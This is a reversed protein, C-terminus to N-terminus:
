VDIIRLEERIRKGLGKMQEGLERGMKGLREGLEKMQRNFVGSDWDQRWHPFRHMRRHSAEHEPVSLSRTQRAGKRIEVIVDGVRLGAKEAPSDTLVHNVRAGVRAGSGRTGPSDANEASVGLWGGRNERDSISLVAPRDHGDQSASPASGSPLLTMFLAAVIAPTRM